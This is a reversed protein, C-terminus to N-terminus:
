KLKRRILAEKTTYNCEGLEVAIKLYNRVSDTSVGITKAINSMSCGDNWYKASLIINSETAACNADTWNVSSMDFMSNFINNNKINNKIYEFRNELKDYQCNIRIVYIGHDKALCDKMKDSIQVKEKNFGKFHFHGDMEVFYKKNNKEFYFDYRYDEAWEFGADRKTIENKFDVNLQKLVNFMFKNPYSIGDSCCPCSFGFKYLNSIIQNKIHGCNPCVTYIRRNSQVSYKIADDKNVLYQILEPNTDIIKKHLLRGLSCCKITDLSAIDYQTRTYGDIYIKLRRKNKEYDLLLIDGSINGYVFKISHGISKTWNIKGDPTKPLASLDVNKIIDNTKNM